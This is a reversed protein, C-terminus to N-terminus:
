ATKLLETNLGRRLMIFNVIARSLSIKGKRVWTHLIFASDILSREEPYLELLVCRLVADKKLALKMLAISDSRTRAKENSVTKLVVFFLHNSHYLRGLLDNERETNLYNSVGLFNWFTLSSAKDDSIAESNAIPKRAERLIEVAKESPIQKTQSLSQLRLALSLIEGTVSGSEVLHQGVARGSELQSVLADQVKTENVLGAKMLLEGLLIKQEDYSPLRSFTEDTAKISRLKSSVTQGQIEGARLERQLALTVRLYDESIFDLMVLVQGLPFGSCDSVKLGFELQKGNIKNASQLLEGLRTRHTDSTKVGLTILAEDFKLQSVKVINLAERAQNINIIKDRLMSQAQIADHLLHEHICELFILAKGLPLGTMSSIRLGCDLDQRTVIGFDILLGGLRYEIKEMENHNNMKNKAGEYALVRLDQIGITVQPMVANRMSVSAM